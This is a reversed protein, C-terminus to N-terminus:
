LEAAAMWLRKAVALNFPMSGAAHSFSVRSFNGTHGWRRM